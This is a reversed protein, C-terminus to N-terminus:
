PGPLLSVQPGASPLSLAQGGDIVLKKIAM